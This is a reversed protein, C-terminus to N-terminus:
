RRPASPLARASVSLASIVAAKTVTPKIAGLKMIAYIPAPVPVDNTIAAGFTAAVRGGSPSDVFWQGTSPRYVAMEDHGLGDYDGPVPFDGLNPAGFTGLLRPGSPGDVFWQATSPQFVAMETKGTGDYDGPVPIDNLSPTGFTGLLYGGNPGDVFWQGTTPRYVAMETKGNGNYDGPVPIDVGAEGFTGLLHGGNPGLVFWQATAPRYVAVEPHGVGDFDGIVPIDSLNQAGFVPIPTLLGDTSQDIFFQATGPRFIAFDSKGDHDFDDTTYGKKGAVTLVATATAGLTAGNTPSSLALNITGGPTGNLNNLLTISFTESTMGSAFSLTGSATQYDSGASDSGNSTTYNVAFAGTGGTRTVTVTVAGGGDTGNYNTTNFQVVPPLAATTEQWGIDKLGALDMPTITVRGGTYLTPDMLAHTAGTKGDALVSEAWHRADPSVPVPGGYLAEASAGTFSGDAGDATNRGTILNSWAASTGMGLVHLIEHEAVSLFDTQSAGIGSISANFYWNTTGSDDFAISGGWPGFATAPTALAGAQGRAAVTNLWSQDGTSSNATYGGTSGLGAESNGSLNGGGVYIIITNAPVTPNTVTQNQDTAPDPFTEAWTDGGSPTIAALNTTIDALDASAAEQLLSVATPNKTFFGATDDSYNFEITLTLLTRPELPALDPRM